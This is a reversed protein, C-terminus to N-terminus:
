AIQMLKYLYDCTNCNEACKKNYLHDRANVHSEIFCSVRYRLCLGGFVVYPTDSANATTTLFLPISSTFSRMHGYLGVAAVALRSSTAWRCLKDPQVLVPAVRVVAGSNIMSRDIAKVQRHRRWLL